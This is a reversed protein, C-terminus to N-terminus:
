PTHSGLVATTYWAAEMHGKLTNIAALVMTIYPIVLCVQEFTLYIQVVQSVM